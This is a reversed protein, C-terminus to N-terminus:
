EIASYGSWCIKKSGEAAIGKGVYESSHEVMNVRAQEWHLNLESKMVKHKGNYEAKDVNDQELNLFCISAPLLPCPAHLM